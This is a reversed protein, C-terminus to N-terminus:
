VSTVKALQLLVLLGTILALLLRRYDFMRMPEIPNRRFSECIYAPVM